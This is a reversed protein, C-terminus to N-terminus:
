DFFVRSPDRRIQQHKWQSAWIADFDLGHLADCYAVFLKERLATDTALDSLYQQWSYPKGKKKVLKAYHAEEAQRLFANLVSRGQQDTFIRCLKMTGNETEKDMRSGTGIPLDFDVQDFDFSFLADYISEEMWHRLLPSKQLMLIYANWDPVQADAELHEQKYIPYAARQAKWTLYDVLFNGYQIMDVELNNKNKM